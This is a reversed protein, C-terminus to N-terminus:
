QNNGRMRRGCGGMGRGFGRGRSLTPDVDNKNEASVGSSHSNICQNFFRRARGRLKKGASEVEEQRNNQALNTSACVGRKHGTMSGQGMPGQQNFGPM